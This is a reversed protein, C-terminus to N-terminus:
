GSFPNAELHTELGLRGVEELFKSIFELSLALSPLEVVGDELVEFEFGKDKREM